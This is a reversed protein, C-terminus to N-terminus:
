SVDQILDAIDTFDNNVLKYIIEMKQLESNTPWKRNCDCSPCSYRHTMVNGYLDAQGNKEMVEGCEDCLLAILESSEVVTFLDFEEIFDMFEFVDNDQSYKETIESIILQVADFLDEDVMKLSEDHLDNEYDFGALTAESLRPKGIYTSDQLLTKVQHSEVKENEIEKYSETIDFANEGYLEKIFEETKSYEGCYKFIKFMDQILEKALSNKIQIWEDGDKEYGLPISGGAKKKWDRNKLFGRAVSRRSKETRIENEVDSMLARLTTEMLGDVEGINHEGAISLLTIDCRNQLLYIFYLTEPANRGIRDIDQVFLYNVDERQSLEFVRKIGARDFNTGTKGRDVIVPAALTVGYEHALAILEDKQQAISEGNNSEDSNEDSEDDEQPADQQHSSVRAYAIGLEEDPRAGEPIFAIGRETATHSNSDAESSPNSEEAQESSQTSEGNGSVEPFTSGLVLLGALAGFSLTTKTNKAFESILDSIRDGYLTRIRDKIDVQYLRAAKM